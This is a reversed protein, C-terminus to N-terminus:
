WASVYESGLWQRSSSTIAYTPGLSMRKMQRSSVCSRRRTLSVLAVDAVAVIQDLQAALWLRYTLDSWLQHRLQALGEAPQPRQQLLGVTPAFGTAEQRPHEGRDDLVAGLRHGGRQGRREVATLVVQELEGRQATLSYRRSDRHGLRESVVDDLRRTGGVEVGKSACTCAHAVGGGDGDDFPQALLESGVM